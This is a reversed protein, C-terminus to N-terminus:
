RGYAYEMTTKKPARGLLKRLDEAAKWGRYTAEEFAPTGLNNAAFYVRGVPPTLKPVWESFFNVPVIHISAPWRYSEVTLEKEKKLDPLYDHLDKVADVLLDAVTDPDLEKVGRRPELPQYISLVGPGKPMTQFGKTEIWRAAIVDTFSRNTFWTDYTKTCLDRSTFVSHVLYDAYPLKAVLAKRDAPYDEMLKTTVRLPVAM